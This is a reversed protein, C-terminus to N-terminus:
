SFKGFKEKGRKSKGKLPAEGSAAAGSNSSTGWGWANTTPAEFRLCKLRETAPADGVTEQCWPCTLFCYAESQKLPM